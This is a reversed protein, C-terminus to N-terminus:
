ISYKDQEKCQPEKPEGCPDPGPSCLRPCGTKNPSCSLKSPPCFPECNCPCCHRPPCCKPPCKVARFLWPLYAALPLAYFVYKHWTCCKEENGKRKGLEEGKECEALLKLIDRKEVKKEECKEEQKKSLDEPQKEAKGAKQPKSKDDLTSVEPTKNNADANKMEKANSSKQEAANSKDPINKAKKPEEKGSKTDQKAPKPSSM